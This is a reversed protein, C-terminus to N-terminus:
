SEVPGDRDGVWSVWEFKAVGLSPEHHAGFAYVGFHTGTMISDMPRQRVMVSTPIHGAETWEPQEEPSSPSPSFSLTYTHPTATIRLQIPETTSLPFTREKIGRRTPDPDDTIGGERVCVRAPSESPHYRGGLGPVELGDGEGPREREGGLEFVGMQEVLCLDGSGGGGEGPPLRGRHVM